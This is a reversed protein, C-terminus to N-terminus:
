ITLDIDRRKRCIGNWTAPPRSFRTATPTTRIATILAMETFASKTRGTRKVAEKAIVVTAQIIILFKRSQKIRATKKKTAGVLRVIATSVNM